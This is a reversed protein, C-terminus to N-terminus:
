NINQPKVALVVVDQGQIAERNNATVIIGYHEKLYQRRSDSIDSVSIDAPKCLKSELLSRIIAEGMNGGGIFAIKM